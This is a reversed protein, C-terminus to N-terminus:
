RPPPPSPPTTDAGGRRRSRLFNVFALLLFATGLAFHVSNTRGESFYLFFYIAGAILFLIWAWAAFARM